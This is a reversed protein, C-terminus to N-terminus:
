AGTFVVAVVARARRVLVRRQWLHSMGYMCTVTCVHVGPCGDEGTGERVTVGDGCCGYQTNACASMSKKSKGCVRYCEETSSFTCNNAPVCDSSIADVKVCLGTSPHYQFYEVVEVTDPSKKAECWFSGSCLTPDLSGLIGDNASCRCHPCEGDVALGRILCCILLFLISLGLSLIAM